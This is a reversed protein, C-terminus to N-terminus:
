QVGRASGPTLCEPSVPMRSNTILQIDFQELFWRERPGRVTRFPVVVSRGTNELRVAVNVAQGVSGPVPLESVLERQHERLLCALLFMQREALGPDVEALYPGRSTGFVWGMELYERRSALDFFREVTERPSAAGAGGAPARVRGSACGALAALVVVLSFIRIPSHVITERHALFSATPALEGM